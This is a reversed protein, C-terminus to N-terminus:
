NLISRALSIATISKAGCFKLLKACGFATAGTTIVDDIIIVKANKIKVKIDRLNDNLEFANYLNIRRMDLNLRAQPKTYKKRKIFNHKIPKDFLKSIHNAILTSQNYKRFFLRVRHIPVPIIFDADDIQDKFNDAIIQAAFKAFFTKDGFKLLKIAKAIKDQYSFVSLLDDCDPRFFSCSICVEM